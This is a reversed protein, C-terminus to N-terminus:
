WRFHAFAKNAQAMKHVDERKKVAGGQGAAADKLESALARGMPVGKRRSAFGVIWRVALSVSRDAPVETPVQYTAGGVRRAKVEVRPKVMDIAKAVVDLPNGGPEAGKNALDIAQYVVREATSKKGDQMVTTILRRVLLDGFKADPVAARREAQRRRAM